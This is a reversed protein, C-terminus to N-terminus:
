RTYNSDTQGLVVSDVLPRLKSLGVDSADRVLYNGKILFQGSETYLHEWRIPHVEHVVGQAHNWGRLSKIWTACSVLQGGVNVADTAQDGAITVKGVVKTTSTPSDCVHDGIRIDSVNKLIQRGMWDKCMIQCDPSLGSEAEIAAESPKPAARPGNLSHWVENYWKMLSPVDSDSIEEWDAFLLIGSTGICPIRRTTTTLCWMEKEHTRCGKEEVAAPHDSVRIRNTPREPDAILHDGTVRIGELNYFTDRSRFCHTATVRGGDRLVDGLKIASIAQLSGDKLQVSTDPAFCAGPSFLESVMAAAIATAVSVVVVSVLATITIILGSIPLLFFFLIIQLIIIIGIVIIAVILTVQISNIVTIILAILSFIISVASANLREVISYLNIMFNQFLKAVEKMKTMFTSYTQYCMRWVNYFIDGVGSAVNQMMGVTAGASAVLSKPAEAAIAIVRQMYQKQCFNWNDTAFESPSRPDNTPKFFAAIPVVYPDCRKEDWSDAINVRFATAIVGTLVITLGITLVSFQVVSM